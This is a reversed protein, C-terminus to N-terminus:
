KIENLNWDYKLYGISTGSNIEVKTYPKIYDVLSGNETFDKKYWKFINSLRMKEESISNRTKDNVFDLTVQELQAEMKSATFAKNLLKPCSFSACNIAFHIRPENMKRLIKHEIDGLSIKGDGTKVWDKGWPNKIDKISKTPYNDLILKVTAANYLNIYYALKENKSWDKEPSNAALDDLYANLASIDGLFSKYDVDGKKNVYKILLSNWKSHDPKSYIKEEPELKVIAEITEEAEVLVTEEKQQVAPNGSDEIVPETALEKQQTVAQSTSHEKIPKTLEEEQEIVAQSESDQIMSQTSEEQQEAIQNESDQESEKQPEVLLTSDSTDIKIKETKQEMTTVKDQPTKVTNGCSLWLSSLVLIILKHM